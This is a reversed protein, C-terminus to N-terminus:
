RNTVPSESRDTRGIWSNREATQDPFGLFLNQSTYTGFM